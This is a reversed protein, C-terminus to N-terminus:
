EDVHTQNTGSGPINVAVDDRNPNTAGNFGPPTPILAGSLMPPTTLVLSRPSSAASTSHTGLVPVAVHHTQSAIHSSLIRNQERINGTEARLQGLIEDLQQRSLELKAQVSELERTVATQQASSHAIKQLNEEYVAEGNIIVDLKRGMLEVSAQLQDRTQQLSDRTHELHLIQDTLEKVRGQIQTNTQELHTNTEELDTVREEFETNREALHTNTTELGAATTTIAQTQRELTQHQNKVRDLASSLEGILEYDKMAFFTYVSVVACVAFHAALYLNGAGYTMITGAVSAVISALLAINRLNLEVRGLLCSGLGGCTDWASAVPVTDAITVPLVPAPTVVATAM